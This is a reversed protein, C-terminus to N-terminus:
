SRGQHTLAMLALSAFLIPVDRFVIDLSAVNFAIIFFITASSLGSALFARKSTLLWLALFIEYISFATLVVGRPMVAEIWYPLFGVWSFPDLLAATGAYMLATAIGARLLFSILRENKM